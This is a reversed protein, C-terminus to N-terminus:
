KQSNAYIVKYIELLEEIGMSELEKAFDTVESIAREGTIFLAVQEQIYPKIVTELDAKRQITEADIYYISPMAAIAYPAINESISVRYWGEAHDLGKQSYEAAQYAEEDSAGALKYSNTYAEVSEIVGVSPCFGTLSELRYTYGDVDGTDQVLKKAVPDWSRPIYDFVWETGATPGAWFALVDDTTNNFYADLIRMCLEPYETDASILFGGV